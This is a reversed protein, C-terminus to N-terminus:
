RSVPVGIPNGEAPFAKRTKLLVSGLYKRSSISSNISSRTAALEILVYLRFPGKHFLHNNNRKGDETKDETVEAVVNEAEAGVLTTM